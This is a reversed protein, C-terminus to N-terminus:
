PLARRMQRRRIRKWQLSSFLYSFSSDGCRPSKKHNGQCVWPCVVSISQCIARVLGKTALNHVDDFGKTALNHVDDFGKTALNHVDDFGTTVNTLFILDSPVHERADRHTGRRHRLASKRHQLSV